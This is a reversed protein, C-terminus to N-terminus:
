VTASGPRALAPTALGCERLVTAARVDYTQAAALRVANRRL